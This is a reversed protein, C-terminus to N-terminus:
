KENRTSKNVALKRSLKAIFNDWRAACQKREEESMKQWEEDRKRQEEEHQKREERERMDWQAKARLKIYIQLWQLLVAGSIDYLKGFASLKCLRVFFAIDDFKLAPYETLILEATEAVQTDNMTQRRGIFDLYSIIAASLYALTFARWSDDRSAMELLTPHNSVIVEEYTRCRISSLVSSPTQM